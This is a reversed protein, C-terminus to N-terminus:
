LLIIFFEIPLVDLIKQGFKKDKNFFLLRYISPFHYILGFGVDYLLEIIQSIKNNIHYLLFGTFYVSFFYNM